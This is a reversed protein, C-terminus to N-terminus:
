ITKETVRNKEDTIKELIEEVVEAPPRDNVVRIANVPRELTALQSAL